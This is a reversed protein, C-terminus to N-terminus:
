YIADSLTRVRDRFGWYFISAKDCRKFRQAVWLQEVGFSSWGLAANGWLQM